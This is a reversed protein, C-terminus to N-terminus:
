LPEYVAAQVREATSLKGYVRQWQQQAEAADCQASAYRQWETMSHWDMANLDQCSGVAAVPLGAAQTATPETSGLFFLGGFILFATKLMTSKM